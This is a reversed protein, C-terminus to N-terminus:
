SSYPLRTETSLRRHQRLQPQSSASTCKPVCPFEEVDLRKEAALDYWLDPSYTHSEICVNLLACSLLLLIHSNPDPSARMHGVHAKLAGVCLKTEGKPLALLTAQVEIPDGLPTGSGHAQARSLLTLLFLALHRRPSACPRVELIEPPRGAIHWSSRLLMTQSDRNPATLSASAGACRVVSSLVRASTGMVSGDSSDIAAAVCGESAVFRTPVHTCM